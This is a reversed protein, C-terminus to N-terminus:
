LVQAARREQVASRAFTKSNKKAVKATKATSGPEALAM